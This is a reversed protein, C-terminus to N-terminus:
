NYLNVYYVYVHMEGVYVCVKKLVHVFMSACICGCSDVHISVHVHMWLSVTHASICGLIFHIKCMCM